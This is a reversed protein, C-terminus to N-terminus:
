LTGLPTSEHVIEIWLYSKELNFDHSRIIWISNQASIKHIFEDKLGIDM